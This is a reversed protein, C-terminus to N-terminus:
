VNDDGPRVPRFREGQTWTFAIWHSIAPGLSMSRDIGTKMDFQLKCKAHWTKPGNKGTKPPRGARFLVGKLIKNWFM